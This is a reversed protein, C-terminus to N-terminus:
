MAKELEEFLLDLEYYNLMEGSEQDRGSIIYGGPSALDKISSQHGVRFYDCSNLVIKNSFIEFNMLEYNVSLPTCKKRGFCVAYPKLLELSERIQEDCLDQYALLLKIDQLWSMMEAIDKTQFGPLEFLLFSVGKAAFYRAYDLNTIESAIINKNM